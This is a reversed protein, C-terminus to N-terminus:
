CCGYKRKRERSQDNFSNTCLKIRRQYYKIEGTALIWKGSKRWSGDDQYWIAFGLPQLSELLFLSIQKKDLFYNENYLKEVYNNSITFRYGLSGFGTTYPRIKNKCNLIKYKWKLYDLQKYGHTFIFTRRRIRIGCHIMGDGLLSGLIIQKQNDTLLRQHEINGQRTRFKIINFYSKIDLNKAWTTISSPSCKFLDAVEDRNVINNIYYEVVKRKFQEDRIIPM